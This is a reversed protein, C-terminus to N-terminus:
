NCYAKGSFGATFTVTLTNPSVIAVSGVVIDNASDYVTVVPVKNLNHNITWVSAPTAQDHVYHADGLGTPPIIPVTDHITAIITEGLDVVMDDGVEAIVLENEVIVELEDV